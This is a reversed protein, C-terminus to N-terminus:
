DSSSSDDPVFIFVLILGMIAAIGSYIFPTSFSGVSYLVGSATPAVAIGLGFSGTLTSLYLGSNRDDALEGALALSPAFVLAVSVGQILRAILMQLSTNVFGQVTISPILILFGILIVSKRGRRDSLRGVPTQSFTNALIAASFQLGFMFTTQDFRELTAEELTIFVAISAALLFNTAALVLVYKFNDTRVVDWLKERESDPIEDIKSEQVFVLVIFFSIIAALVTIWFAAEVGTLQTVMLNYPGFSIVAGAVIPGTGFGILRFTNYIGFNEGKSGKIAEINIISAIAPVLLAGGIGQAIRLAIVEAYTDVVLYLPVTIALIALGALVFIKRKNLRDSVSGGIPQGLSSVLATTSIAVGVLLEVTIELGLISAGDLLSSSVQGGSIYMPIVVILFSVGFSEIARVISLLLVKRNTNLEILKDNIQM